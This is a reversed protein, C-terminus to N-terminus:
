FKLSVGLNLIYAGFGLEGMLAFNPSVYYRAGAFVSEYLGTGDGPDNVFGDMDERETVIVADLGLAVGGYFDFDEVLDFHYAVRPTIIIHTYNWGWDDNGYYGAWYHKNFAMGFFGGASIYGIGLKPTVGIEWAANFGPSRMKGYFTNGIGLGINIVQTGKEFTQALMPLAFFVAIIVLVALKKM